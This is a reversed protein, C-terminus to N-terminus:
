KNLIRDLMLIATVSKADNIRGDEVMAVAESLPLKVVNIFEDEDTHQKGPELGQAAYTYIVENCFGVCTALKTLFKYEKATYGTEESLERKACELPDEGPMDLKGAPIELTVEDIPYRYQRVLIVQGDETVPIVAAAGPHKIWERYATGGNPLKVKDKRVHLLNGDFINESSEKIEILDEYM